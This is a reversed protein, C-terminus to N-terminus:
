NDVTEIKSKDEFKEKLEGFGAAFAASKRHVNPNFDPPYPGEVLETVVIEHKCGFDENDNQNSM